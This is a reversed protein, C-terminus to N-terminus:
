KRGDMPLCRLFHLRHRFSGLFSNSWQLFFGGGSFFFYRCYFHGPFFSQRSFSGWCIGRESVAFLLGPQITNRRRRFSTRGLLRAHTHCTACQSRCMTCVWRFERSFFARWCGAARRLYLCGQKQTCHAGRNLLPWIRVMHKTHYSSPLVSALAQLELKTSTM